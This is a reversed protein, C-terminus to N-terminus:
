ESYCVEINNKDLDRVFAAYYTPTYESRPGPTGNDLGGAIIAVKYFANVVKHSKARFAVHVGKHAPRGKISQAIEFIPDKGIGYGWFGDKRSGLVIKMGLVALAKDYFRKSKALDAVCITIHDLM